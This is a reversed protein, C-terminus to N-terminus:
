EGVDFRDPAVPLPVVESMLRGRSRVIEIAGDLFGHGREVGFSVAMRQGVVSSSSLHPAEVPQGRYSRPPQHASKIKSQQAAPALQIPAALDAVCRRPPGLNLLGSRLGM